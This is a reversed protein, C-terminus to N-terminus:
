QTVSASSKDAKWFWVQAKQRAQDIWKVIAAQLKQNKLADSAEKDQEPGAKTVTMYKANDKIYAAVEEASVTAEKEVSKEIAIRLAIQKKFEAFTMGRESLLKELDGGEGLGSKIEDIRANTDAESPISNSRKAESEVASQVILDEVLQGGYQKFLLQNVEHRSIIKGDVVAVVPWSNTKWWWAVAVAGVVLVWMIWKRNKKTQLSQTSDYNKQDLEFSTTPTEVTEPSVTEKRTVRRKVAM